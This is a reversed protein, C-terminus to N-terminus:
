AAAGEPDFDDRAVEVAAGIEAESALNDTYGLAFLLWQLEWPQYHRYEPFRSFLERIIPLVDLPKPYFSCVPPIEKPRPETKVATPSPHPSPPKQKALLVVRSSSFDSSTLSRM